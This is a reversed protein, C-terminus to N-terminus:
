GAPAASPAPEAPVGERASQLLRYAALEEESPRAPVTIRVTLLLDGAAAGRLGPLGKGRLRLTRGPQTGAPITVSVAGGSLPQVHATGGLVAVHDLVALDAQLDRGRVTFRPHPRLRVTLYLDGKPGGGRGPGGEGGVRVRSGEAVGAPIRVEVQRHGLQLLRSAGMAAEELSIEVDHQLDRGARAPATRTYTRGGRGDDFGFHVAGGDGASQRLLEDLDIGGSGFFTEFFDSFGSEAFQASGARAGHQARYQRAFEEQRELEEWNAGLRDYKSRKEPDKLVEYAENIRKFREEAATDKNVDPHLKRALARYAKKIADQSAERPVGLTAYYDKYEM